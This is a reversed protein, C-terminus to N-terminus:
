RPTILVTTPGLQDGANAFVTNDGRSGFAASLNAFGRNNYSATSGSVIMVAGPGTAQFGSELANLTATSLSVTMTAKTSAADGRAYYGWRNHSSLSDTVTVRVASDVTPFAYMGDFWIGNNNDRVVTDVITVDAATRVYIGAVDEATFGAVECDAVALRAGNTTRTGFQGASFNLSKLNRLSVKVGASEIVIADGGSGVMSGVAGPIALISVSKTINVPGTNFNASDLMWTEGGDKIAALAAPLLRGPAQVTCPNADSGLPRM